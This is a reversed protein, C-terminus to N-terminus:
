ADTDFGDRTVSFRAIDEYPVVPFQKEHGKHWIGADPGDTEGWRGSNWLSFHAYLLPAPMVDNHLVGNSWLWRSPRTLRGDPLLWDGNFTSYQEKFLLKLKKGDVQQEFAFQGAWKLYARNLKPMLMETMVIEDFHLYRDTCFVRKWDRFASFLSYTHPATRYVSFHGALLYTHSSIIDFEDLHPGYADLIAGYVLDLDSYGWFQYNDAIDRHLFGLAPKLDCLKYAETWRIDINLGGAIYAIYDPLTTHIHSVNGPRRPLPFDSIILWDVGPNAACSALFFNMWRIPRGFYPIIILLKKM